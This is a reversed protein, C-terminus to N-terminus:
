RWGLMGEGLTETENMGHEENRSFTEAACRGDPMSPCPSIIASM